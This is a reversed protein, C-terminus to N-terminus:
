PTGAAGTRGREGVRLLRDRGAAASSCRRSCSSCASRAGSRRSSTSGPRSRARVEGILERVLELGVQPPTRARPATASRCAGGPRRDGADRQARAGRARALPDAVRRRAASHALRRDARPVLRPVDLDFVIQTMAFRAGAEVKRRFGSPRSSSTTPPRTSRSARSSRRRRMSRAATSTRRRREAADDARRPRDRRRRVGLRHRPLRGGRARRGDGRARQPRRRRARRAPTSELGSLTSDRPTLHPIM